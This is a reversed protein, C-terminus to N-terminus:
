MSPSRGWLRDYDPRLEHVTALGNPQAPVPKDESAEALGSGRHQDPWYLLGMLGTLIALPWNRSVLRAAGLAAATGGPISFLAGLAAIPAQVMAQAAADSVVEGTDSAEAAQEDPAAREWQLHQPSDRQSIRM